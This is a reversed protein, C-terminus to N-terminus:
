WVLAIEIRKNGKKFAKSKLNNMILDNMTDLYREYEEVSSFSIIQQRQVEKITTDIVEDSDESGDIDSETCVNASDTNLGAAKGKIEKVKEKLKRCSMDTSVQSLEDETLDLMVLLQSSSYTAVAPRLKGTLKGKSNREAFRDVIACFNYATRKEIGHASLAYDPLNKYGLEKYGETEKFWHLAFAVATFGNEVTALGDRIDTDHAKAEKALAEKRAILEAKKADDVPLNIPASAKPKAKARPTAIAKPAAVAKPATATNKTINTEKTATM